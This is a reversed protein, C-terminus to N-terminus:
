FVQGMLEKAIIRAAARAENATMGIKLRDDYLMKLLLEDHNTLLAFEDDDNFISPRAEPSDNAPGLGQAIEEHVCSQRLLSPLESRILAIARTYAYPAGSASFALVSCEITLPMNTLFTLTEDSISPALERIRRSLQTKDDEGMVLVHFNTGTQARAVPHGTIRGLRNAFRAVYAADKRRQDAPVSAGFEVDIKVPTAWRRLHGSVGRRTGIGGTYEDYFVITEFNRTLDEASFVTDPGGGDTRLLGRTLLDAQRKAYHQAVRRSTDSQETPQPRPSTAPAAPPAPAPPNGDPLEECATLALALGAGTLWPWRRM